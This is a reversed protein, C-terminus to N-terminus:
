SYAKIIGIFDAARLSAGGVLAGNVNDIAMLESANGPKVSGGYLVRISSGAEGLLNALETRIHGHAEEVEGLSPTLGTGIAWVPEYAVITNLGTSREPVSLSVQEGLVRLADGRKREDITEGICIISVLGARHAARAKGRVLESKEQHGIRRESHGVIVATAGADKLMEAAIDGTFPGQPDPHCDQGGLQIQASRTLRTAAMLLSAPPCIMVDCNLKVGALMSALLRLEGLSATTGNMKWNGAVLARLGGKAPVKKGGVIGRVLNLLAAPRHSSSNM